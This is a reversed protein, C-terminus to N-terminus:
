HSTAVSDLLWGIWDLKHGFLMAEGLYLMSAFAIPTGFIM